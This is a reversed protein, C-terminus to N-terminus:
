RHRWVGRVVQCWPEHHVAHNRELYRVGGLHLLLHAVAGAYPAIGACHAIHERVRAVTLLAFTQGRAKKGELAKLRAQQAAETKAHFDAM